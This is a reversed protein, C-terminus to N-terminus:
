LYQALRPALFDIFKRIKQPTEKQQPLLIQVSSSELNWEKFVQVLRGDSIFDRALFAPLVTLGSGLVAMQRLTFFNNSSFQTALKLHRVEKGKSLKLSCKKLELASFALFSVSELDEPKNLNGCRNLLDPSMVFILEVTGIKKRIMTSDKAKGIRIAVDVGEKVLDVYQNSSLVAIQIKPFLTMFEHCIKGILETGIDESVTLRLGGSIEDGEASLQEVTNNLEILLPGARQFLEKGNQTLQFQRTTRYILQVGLAKELAAISRSVRSKPQKLILAAKSFSGAKVVERFVQLKNLDAVFSM